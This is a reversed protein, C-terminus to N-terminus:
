HGGPTGPQQFKEIGSLFISGNTSLVSAITNHWTASKQKGPNLYEWYDYIFSCIDEKWRFYSHDRDKPFDTDPDQRRMLNYLVLQVVTIWAMSQRVYKEDQQTCVSCTFELFDDGFLLPKPFCKVCDRHFFQQCQQCQVMPIGSNYSKGCYCYVDEENRTHDANWNLTTL